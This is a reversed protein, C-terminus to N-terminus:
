FLLKVRTTILLIHRDPAPPLTQSAGNGPTIFCALQCTSTNTALRSRVTPADALIENFTEVNLNQVGIDTFKAVRLCADDAGFVVEDVGFADSKLYARDHRTTGCALRAQAVLM